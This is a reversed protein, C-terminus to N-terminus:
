QAPPHLFDRWQLEAVHRYLLISIVFATTYACSTVIAAVEIGGSRLFLLLGGVTLAAAPATALSSLFPRNAALLGSWLVIAGADLVAGPLLIRMSTAAAGFESGYVFELAVAALVGLPLAIAVGILLVAQLTRIVTRASHKRRRAAVPLVFLAITGTLTAIVSTTNTAVSYLGISTAGLFAPIILLDLRANVM